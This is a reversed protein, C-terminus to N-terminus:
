PYEAQIGQGETDEPPPLKLDQTFQGPTDEMMNPMPIKVNTM